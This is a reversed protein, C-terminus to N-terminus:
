SPRTAVVTLGHCSKVARDVILVDGDCIGADRM